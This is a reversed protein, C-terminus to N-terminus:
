LPELNLKFYLLDAREHHAEAPLLERRSKIERSQVTAWWGIHWAWRNFGANGFYFAIHEYDPRPASKCPIRYWGQERVIKWDRPLPLLVVLAREVPLKRSYERERAEWYDGANQLLRNDESSGSPNM